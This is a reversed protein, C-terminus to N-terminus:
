SEPFNQPRSRLWSEPTEYCIRARV